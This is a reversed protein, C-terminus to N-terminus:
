PRAEKLGFFRPGNWRTGTIARAIESLSRYTVGNWAFGHELAMVHHTVDQWERVFMTGPRGSPGVVPVAQRDSGALRTLMRASAVPLDGWRDAQIRYALLRLLLHRPVSAPISRGTLSRWRARLGALDLDGLRAIEDECTDGPQAPVLRASM